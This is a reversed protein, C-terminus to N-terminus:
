NTLKILAICAGIRLDKLCQPERVVPDCGRRSNAFNTFVRTWNKRPACKLQFTKFRYRNINMSRIKSELISPLTGHRATAGSPGSVRGRTEALAAGTM